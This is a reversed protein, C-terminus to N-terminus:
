KKKQKFYVIIAKTYQIIGQRSNKKRWYWFGLLYVIIILILIINFWPTKSNMGLERLSYIEFEFDINETYENNNADLYTLTLPLSVTKSDASMRLKFDVSEDDDPDVDGLYFSNEGIIEYDSREGYNWGFFTKDELEADNLEVTLFKLKTLGTNVINLTIEGLGNKSYIENDRIELHIKPVASVVLGILDSKTYKNGLEDYYVLSIPVKYVGSDAEPLAIIDFVIDEGDGIAVSQVNKESTSGYPAFPISVDSLNLKVSVDKMTYDAFNQVHVVVQSAVGPYFNGADSALVSTVQVSTPSIVQNVRQVYITFPESTIQKTKSSYFQIHLTYFGDEINDNAIISFTFKEKEGPELNDFDLTGDSGEALFFPYDEILAIELDTLEESDLNTIEFLLNSREGPQVPSPDYSVLDIRLEDARTIVVQNASVAMSMCFLFLLIIFILKKM